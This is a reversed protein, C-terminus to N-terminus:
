LQSIDLVRLRIAAMATIYKSILFRRSRRRLLLGHRRDHIASLNLKTGSDQGLNELAKRKELRNSYSSLIVDYLFPNEHWIETLTDEFQM